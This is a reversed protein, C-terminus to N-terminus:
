RQSEVVESMVDRSTQQLGTAGSRNWVRLQSSGNIFLRMHRNQSAIYHGYHATALMRVFGFRFIM